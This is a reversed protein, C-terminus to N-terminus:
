KQKDVLVWYKNAGYDSLKLDHPYLDTESPYKVDWRGKAKKKVRGVEWGAKTLFKHAIMDGKKAARAANLHKWEETDEWPGPDVEEEESSSDSSDSNPITENDNNEQESDDAAEVMEEAGAEINEDEDGESASSTDDDISWEYNPLGKIKCTDNAEDVGFAWGKNKFIQLADLCKQVEDWAEGALFTILVRVKWAPMAGSTWEAYFEDDDALKKDLQETMENKVMIGIGDDIVQWLHTAGPLGFHADARIKQSLERYEVTSQGDLNDYIALARRNKAAFKDVTRKMETAAWEMCWTRDAWAKPQFTVHV